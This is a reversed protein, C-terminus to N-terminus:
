IKKAQDVKMHWIKSLFEPTVKHPKSAYMSDLMVTPDDIQTLTPEFLDSTQNNYASVSGISSIFKSRLAIKLHGQFRVSEQM